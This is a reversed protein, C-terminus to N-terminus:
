SVLSGARLGGIIFDAYIAAIEDPKLPGDDRYWVDVGTCMTGIGFAVVRPNAVAWAGAESGARLLDVLLREYADRRVLVDELNQGDLAHLQEDAVRAAYRREAHFAVHWRVFTRMREEVDEVGELRAVLGDHLEEVTERCITYLIDQKGPYHNYLSGAKIGVEAAIDRVTTAHYGREYFLRTAVERIRRDTERGTSFRSAGV